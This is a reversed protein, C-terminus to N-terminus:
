SFSERHRQRCRELFLARVPEAPGIDRRDMKISFNDSRGRSGSQSFYNNSAGALTPEPYYGLLKVAVPNFRATPIRNGAFPLRTGNPQITAPDYIIDTIGSFDGNKMASTPVTFTSSGPNVNRIGEYNSFFFTTQRSPTLPGGLTFGFQNFRFPARQRGNRNSFFNNADFKDNRLFEYLVGHFQNTGSRHVLNV